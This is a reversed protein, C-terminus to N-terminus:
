PAGWTREPYTLGSTAGPKPTLVTWLWNIPSYKPAVVVAGVVMRVVTVVVGTGLGLDGEDEVPASRRANLPGPM